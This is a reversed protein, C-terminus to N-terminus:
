KKELSLVRSKLDDIESSLLDIEKQFLSKLYDFVTEWECDAIPVNLQVDLYAGSCMSEFRETFTNFTYDYSAFIGMGELNNVLNKLVSIGQSQIQNENGKDETLRDIYFIIFHFRYWEEDIILSHTQQTIVMSPYAVDQNSNLDYVDGVGVFGVNPENACLEKIIDTTERLTM